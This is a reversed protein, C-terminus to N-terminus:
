VNHESFIIGRVIPRSLDIDIWDPIGPERFIHKESLNKEKFYTISLNQKKNLNAKYELSGFECHPDPNLQRDLKIKTLNLSNKIISNIKDIYSIYNKIIPNFYVTQKEIYNKNKMKFKLLKDFKNIILNPLYYIRQKKDYISLKLNDSLLMYSLKPRFLITPNFMVKSLNLNIKNKEFKIRLNFSTYKLPLIKIISQSCSNIKGTDNANHYDIKTSYVRIAFSMVTYYNTKLSDNELYTLETTKFKDIVFGFARIHSSKLTKKNINKELYNINNSISKSKIESVKYPSVFNRYM